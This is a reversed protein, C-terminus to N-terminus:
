PRWTSPAVSSADFDNFDVYAQFDFHPNRIVVWDFVVYTDVKLADDHGQRAYRRWAFLQVERVSHHSWYEWGYSWTIEDGIYISRLAILLWKLKGDRPDVAYEVKSNWRAHLDDNAHFQRCIGKHWQIREAM